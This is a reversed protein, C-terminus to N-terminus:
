CLTVCSQGYTYTSMLCDYSKGTTDQRQFYRPSTYRVFHIRLGEYFVHKPIETGWYWQSSFMDTVNKHLNAYWSKVSTFCGCLLYLPTSGWRGGGPSMNNLMHLHSDWKISMLLFRVKSLMWFSVIVLYWNLLFAIFMFEVKDTPSAM